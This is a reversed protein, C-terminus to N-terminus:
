ADRTVSRPEADSSGAGSTGADPRRPSRPATARFGGYMIAVGMALMLTFLTADGARVFGFSAGAVVVGLGILLVQPRRSRWASWVCGIVVIM